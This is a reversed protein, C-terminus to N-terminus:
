TASASTPLFSSGGDPLGSIPGTVVTPITSISSPKSPKPRKPSGSTKASTPPSSEDTSSSQEEVTPTPRLSSVVRQVLPLVVEAYAADAADAVVLAADLNSELHLRINQRSVELGQGKADVLTWAEICNRVYFQTMMALVDPTGIHKQGEQAAEILATQVSKQLLVATPFDIVARLTVTDTEHRKAGDAKSPCPCPIQVDM